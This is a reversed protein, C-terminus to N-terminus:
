FSFGYDIGGWVRGPASSHAQFGVAAGSGRLGLAEWLGSRQPRRLFAFEGTHLTTRLGGHRRSKRCPGPRELLILTRVAPLSETVRWGPGSSCLSLWAALTEPSAPSRGANLTRWGYCLRSSCVTVSSLTGRTVSIEAVARLASRELSQFSPTEPTLGHHSHLGGRTGAPIHGPSM